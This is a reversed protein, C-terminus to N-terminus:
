ASPFTGAPMVTVFRLTLIRAPGVASPIGPTEPVVPATLTGGCGGGLTGGRGPVTFTGPVVLEDEASRANECGKVMEVLDTSGTASM